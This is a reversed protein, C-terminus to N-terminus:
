NRFICISGFASLVSLQKASLYSQIFASLKELTQSATNENEGCENIVHANNEIDETITTVLLFPGIGLSIICSVFILIYTCVFYEVCVAISYGFPNRWNFPFRQTAISKFILQYTILLEVSFELEGHWFQYCLLMPERIRQSIYSFASWSDQCYWVYLPWKWQSFTYSKM